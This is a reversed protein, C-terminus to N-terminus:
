PLSSFAGVSRRHPRPDGDRQHLPADRRPGREACATKSTWAAGRSRLSASACQPCGARAADRGPQHLSADRRPGSREPPPTIGDDIRAVARASRRSAHDLHRSAACGHQAAARNCSSAGSEPAFRDVASRAGQDRDARPATNSRPHVRDEGGDGGRPSAERAGLRPARDIGADASRGRPAAADARLGRGAAVRADDGPARARRWDRHELGRRPRSTVRTSASASSWRPPIPRRSICWTRPPRRM